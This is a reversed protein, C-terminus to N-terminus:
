FVSTQSTRLTVDLIPTTTPYVAEKKNLRMQAAPADNKHLNNSEEKDFYEVCYSDNGHNGDFADGLTWFGKLPLDCLGGGYPAWSSIDGVSPRDTVKRAYVSANNVRLNTKGLFTNPLEIKTNLHDKFLEFNSFDITIYAM